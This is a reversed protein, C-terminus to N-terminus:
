PAGKFFRPWLHALLAAFLALALGGLLDVFQHRPIQLISVTIALGWLTFAANSWPKAGDWLAWISLVTLAVHLSPLCNTMMDVSILARLVAASMGEQPIPPFVMTTPYLVFIAGATVASIRFGRSMWLAKDLPARFFAWPVIVFFSLYLWIGNPDPTFWLDIATPALIHAGSPDTSGALGYCLGVLGWGSLMYWLRIVAEARLLSPIKM